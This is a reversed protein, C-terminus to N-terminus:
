RPLAPFMDRSVSRVDIKWVDGVKILPLQFKEDYSGGKDLNRQIDLRVNGAEPGTQESGLFKWAFRYHRGANNVAFDWDKRIEAEPRDGIYSMKTLTEVDGRALADMFRTGVTGVSEKALFFGGVLVVAAIVGGVTLLSM